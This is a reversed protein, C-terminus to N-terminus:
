EGEIRLQELRAKGANTILMEDFTRYAYRLTEVYDGNKYADCNKIIGPLLEVAYRAVEVGGHGDFLGFLSVNKDFDILCFHADKFATFM